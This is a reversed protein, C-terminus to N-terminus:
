RSWGKFTAGPGCYLPTNKEDLNTLWDQPLFTYGRTGRFSLYVREPDTKSKALIVGIPRLDKLSVPAKCADIGISKPCPLAYHVPVELEPHSTWRPCLETAQQSNLCYNTGGLDMAISVHKLSKPALDTIPKFPGLDCARGKVQKADCSCEGSELSTVCPVKATIESTMASIVTHFIMTALLLRRSTAFARMM